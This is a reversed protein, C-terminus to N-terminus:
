IFDPMIMNSFDPLLDMDLKGRIVQIVDSDEDQVLVGMQLPKNLLKLHSTKPSEKTISSYPFSSNKIGTLIELIRRVSEGQISVNSTIDDSFLQYRGLGSSTLIDRYEEPMEAVSIIKM